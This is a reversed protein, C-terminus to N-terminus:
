NGSVLTEFADFVHGIPLIQKPVHAFFLSCEWSICLNIVLIFYISYSFNRGVDCSKDSVELIGITGDKGVKLCVVIAFKELYKAAFIGVM